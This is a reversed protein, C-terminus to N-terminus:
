RQNLLVDRNSESASLSTYSWVCLWEHWWVTILVGDAVCTAKWMKRSLFLCWSMDWWVSLWEYMAPWNSLRERKDWWVSERDRMERCDFFCVAVWKGLWLCVAVWVDGILCVTVWMEGPLCGSMRWWDSLWEYRMLCCGSMHWWVTVWIEGPLCASTRWWDSLWESMDWWVSLWKYRALWLLMCSITHWCFSLCVAVEYTALWLTVWIEGPLGWVDGCLGSLWEYRMLCCGSMHWWVSVWIEVPLCVSTRWWDSLWESMDWWVSLWKYRALWLLMCSITHWCFSLCVTVWVDETVWEYRALCVAVWVDGTLCITVWDYIEVFLCGNMDRWDSFCLALPIDVSLSVSVWEYRVLCVRESMDWWDRRGGRPERDTACAAKSNEATAAATCRVGDTPERFEHQPGAQGRQEAPWM